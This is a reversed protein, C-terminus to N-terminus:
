KATGGDAPTLAGAIRTRLESVRMKLTQDKVPHGSASDLMLERTASRTTLPDVGGDAAVSFLGQTLGIVQTLGAKGTWLFFVFEDGANLAPTGAFLQRQGNVLGGPVLVEVSTGGVGKYRESVQITYHTFIVPGSFAAYSTSVKGRVISTAKIIMDDLSLRELTACQLPGVAFTLVTALMFHRKVAKFLANQVGDLSNSLWLSLRMKEVGTHQESV